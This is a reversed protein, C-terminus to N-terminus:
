EKWGRLVGKRFYPFSDRKDFKPLYMYGDSFEYQYGMEEYLAKITEADSLRHYTCVSLKIRNNDTLFQKNGKLVDVEAGEIDMKVFMSRGRNGQLAKELTIESDTDNVGVSKHIITVKEESDRFTAQLPAYWQTDCEFLYAHDITDINDLTFLGEACGIDVLIDNRDIKCRESQYQHPQKEMYEGGLFAETSVCISYYKKCWEVSRTKPFYLKRGKHIVFPLKVEKDYGAVIDELCMLQKYPYQCTGNHLLFDAEPALDPRHFKVMAMRLELINWDNRERYDMLRKGLTTKYFLNRSVRRLWMKIKNMDKM